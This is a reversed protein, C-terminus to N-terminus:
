RGLTFSVYAWEDLAKLPDEFSSDRAFRAAVDMLKVYSSFSAEPPSLSFGLAGAISGDWIPFFRPALVHLSKATGVPWLVAVFDSYIQGLRDGDSIPDYSAASRARWAAISAEHRNILRNLDAVITRLRDPHFRYFGANWTMLLIAAGDARSFGQGGAYAREVIDRAVKYAIDRPEAEAYVARKAAVDADTPLQPGGSTGHGPWKM